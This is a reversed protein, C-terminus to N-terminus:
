PTAKELLLLIFLIGVASMMGLVYWIFATEEDPQKKSSRQM